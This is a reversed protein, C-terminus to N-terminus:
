RLPLTTKKEIYRTKLQTIPPPTGGDLMTVIHEIAIAGFNYWDQEVTSIEATAEPFEYNDFGTVSIDEPVRFGEARLVDILRHALMDNICM